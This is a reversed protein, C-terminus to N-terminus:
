EESSATLIKWNTKYLGQKKFEDLTTFKFTIKNSGYMNNLRRKVISMAYNRLPITAAIFLVTQKAYQQEDAINDDTLIINCIHAIRYGIYKRLKRNSIYYLFFTEEDKFVFTEPDYEENVPITYIFLDPKIQEVYNYQERENHTAVKLRKENRDVSKDIAIFCDAIALCDLRFAEKRDKDKYLKRVDEAEITYEAGVEEFDTMHSPEAQQLVRRGYKGLYYIAPKTNEPMSTSYIREIYGKELLDKLWVNVRKYDKHRLLTQIHHRNLFRFRYIHILINHQKNTIQTHLKEILEM